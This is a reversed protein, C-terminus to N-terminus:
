PIVEVKAMCGVPSGCHLYLTSLMRNANIVMEDRDNDTSIPELVAYFPNSTSNPYLYLRADDANSVAAWTVFNDVVTDGEVTPWTPEVTGSTGAYYQCTWTVGDVGATSEDAVTAGITTPWVPETAGSVGTGIVATVEYIFGNINVAKCKDGLVYATGSAWTDVGTYLYTAQYVFGTSSSPLVADDLAYVTSAAWPNGGGTATLNTVRVKSASLDIAVSATQNQPTTTVIEDDLLLPYYPDDSIKTWESDIDSLQQYSEVTTGPAALKQVGTTADIYTKQTSGDNRYTGGFATGVAMLFCILFTFIRAFMKDRELLIM